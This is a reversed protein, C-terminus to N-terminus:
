LGHERFLGAGGNKEADQRLEIPIDKLEPPMSHRAPAPLIRSGPLSPFITTPNLGITNLQDAAM